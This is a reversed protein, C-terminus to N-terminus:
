RYTSIGRLGREHSNQIADTFSEGYMNVPANPDFMSNEIKVYILHLYVSIVVLALVIFGLMLEVYTM